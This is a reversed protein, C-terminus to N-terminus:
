TTTGPERQLFKDNSNTFVNKLLYGIVAAISTMLVPKLLDWTPPTDTQLLQYIGTLLATIFTLIIAKVIDKADLKLFKSKM